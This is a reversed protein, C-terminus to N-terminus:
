KKNGKSFYASLATELHALIVIFKQLVSIKIFLALQYSMNYLMEGIDTRNKWLARLYLRLFKIM